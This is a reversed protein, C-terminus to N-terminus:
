RSYIEKKFSNVLTTYDGAEFDENELNAYRRTKELGIKDLIYDLLTINKKMAVINNKM